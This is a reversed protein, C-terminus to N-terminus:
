QYISKCRCNIVNGMSAGLSTDKPYQLLEGGVLFPDKLLRRQGNAIMHANRVRSDGQTIWVKEINLVGIAVIAEEVQLNNNLEDVETFKANETATQVEQMSVVENHTILDDTLPKKTKNAITKDDTSLEALINEALSNNVNKRIIKDWTDVVFQSQVPATALSWQLLSTAIAAATAERVTILDNYKTKTQETKAKSRAEELDDLYTQSFENNVRRYTQTIIAQLEDKYQQTNIITGTTSYLITFDDVITRVLSNLKRQMTKEFMADIDDQNQADKKRDDTNKVLIAM